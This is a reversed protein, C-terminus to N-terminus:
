LWEIDDIDFVIAVITYDNSEDLGLLEDEQNIAAQLDKIETSNTEQICKNVLAPIDLGMMGDNIIVGPGDLTAMMYNKVGQISKSYSTHKPISGISNKIENLEAKELNMNGVRIFRYVNEIDVCDQNENVVREILDKDVQQHKYFWDLIFQEINSNNSSNKILRKLM